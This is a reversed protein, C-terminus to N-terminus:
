IYITQVLNCVPVLLPASGPQSPTLSLDYSYSLQPPNHLPQVPQTYSMPPPHNCGIHMYIYLCYMCIYICQSFLIHMYVVDIKHHTLHSFTLAIPIHYCLHNTDNLVGHCAHIKHTIHM